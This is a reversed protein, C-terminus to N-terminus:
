RRERRKQSASLTMVSSTAPAAGTGPWSFRGLFYDPTDPDNPEDLPTPFIEDTPRLSYRSTNVFTVELVEPFPVGGVLAMPCHNNAHVHIVGFSRKLNQLARIIKAFIPDKGVLHFGHFECVIQSFQRLQAPTANAFVDWEDSEIDSKLVIRAPDGSGYRKLLSGITVGDENMTGVIRRQEFRFNDHSTPPGAVSFDFQHVVIGRQALALDWSADSDIGFSFACTVDSFDDLLVYGGDNHRGLRVKAHGVVQHPALLRAVRIIRSQLEKMPHGVILQTLNRDAEIGRMIHEVNGIRSGLQEQLGRIGHEVSTMHAALQETAQQAHNGDAGVERMISEVDGIRSALQEGLGQIDHEVDKMYAGLQETVQQTRNTDAVDRVIREIDGIQSALQEGLGQIDHEVDKMYAGLQETVQQTRNTDAVDRVIREVAAIQSVLQQGLSQIGHEANKIHAAVQEAVRVDSEFERLRINAARLREESAVVVREQENLRRKVYVVERAADYYRAQAEEIHRQLTQESAQLEQIRRDLEAYRGHDVSQVKSELEACRALARAHSDVLQQLSAARVLRTGLKALVRNTARAVMANTFVTM